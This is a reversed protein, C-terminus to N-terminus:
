YVTHVNKNQCKVAISFSIELIDCVKDLTWTEKEPKKLLM